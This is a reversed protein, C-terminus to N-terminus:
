PKVLVSRLEDLRHEDLEVAPLEVHFDLPPAVSCIATDSSTGVWASPISCVGRQGPCCRLHELMMAGPLSLSNGEKGDPPEDPPPRADVIASAELSASSHKLGAESRYVISRLAFLHQDRSMSKGAPLILSAPTPSLLEEVMQHLTTM